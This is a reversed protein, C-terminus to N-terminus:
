KLMRHACRLGRCQLRSHEVVLEVHATDALDDLLGDLPRALFEDKHVNELLWCVTRGEFALGGFKWPPRAERGRTGRLLAESLALRSRRVQLAANLPREAVPVEDDDRGVVSV